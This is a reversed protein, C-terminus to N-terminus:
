GTVNTLLIAFLDFTGKSCGEGFSTSLGLMKHGDVQCDGLLDTKRIDLTINM